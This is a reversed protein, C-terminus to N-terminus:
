CFSMWHNGLQQLHAAMALGVPVIKSSRNAFLVFIFVAMDVSIEKFSLIVSPFKDM